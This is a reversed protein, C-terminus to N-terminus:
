KSARDAPVLNEIEYEARVYQNKEVEHLETPFAYLLATSEPVIHALILRGNFQEALSLGYTVAKRSPESFDVPVLIKNLSIM